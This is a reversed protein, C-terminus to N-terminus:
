RVVEVWVNGRNDKNNVRYKLGRDLVMEKQYEFNNRSGKLHANVDIAKTGKPAKITVTSTEDDHLDVEDKIKNLAASTKTTSVFGRDEFVDGISLNATVDSPVVRYLTADKTLPSMSADLHEVDKQYGGKLPEGSRLAHNVESGGQYNQLADTQHVTLGGSSTWQGNESRAQDESYAARVREIEAAGRMKHAKVADKWQVVKVPVSTQGLLKRGVIRHNGDHVFYKGKEDQVLVPVKTSYDEGQNRGKGTPNKIAREVGERTVTDQVSHIDSIKVDKIPARDVLEKTVTGQSGDDKGAKLPNTILKEGPETKALKDLAAKKQGASFNAGTWRGHDDRPQEAAAVKVHNFATKGSDVLTKLLVEHLDSEHLANATATIAMDVAIMLGGHDEKTILKVLQERSVAAHGRAFAQNMLAQVAPLQADAAAHVHKYARAKQVRALVRKVVGAAVRDLTPDLEALALLNM